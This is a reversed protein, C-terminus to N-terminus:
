DWNACFGSAIKWKVQHEIPTTLLFQSPDAPLIEYPSQKNPLSQQQEPRHDELEASKILVDNKHQIPLQDGPFHIMHAVTKPSTTESVQHNTQQCHYISLHMSAYIQIISQYNGGKLGGRDSHLWEVDAEEPEQGFELIKAFYINTEHFMPESTAYSPQQDSASKSGKAQAPRIRTLQQDHDHGQQESQSPHSSIENVLEEVSSSVVPRLISPGSKEEESWNDEEVRQKKKKKERAEERRKSSVDEAEEEFQSSAFEDEYAWEEEYEDMRQQQQREKGGSEGGGAAAPKVEDQRRRELQERRKWEREGEETTWIRRTTGDMLRIETHGIEGPWRPVPFTVRGNVLYPATTGSSWGFEEAQETVTSPAAPTSLSSDPRTETVERVEEWTPALTSKPQDGSIPTFLLQQRPHARPVSATTPLLQVETLVEEEESDEEAASKRCIEPFTQSHLSSLPAPPPSRQEGDNQSKASKSGWWIAYRTYFDKPLRATSYFFNPPTDLLDEESSFV